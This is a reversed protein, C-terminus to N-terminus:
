SMTEGTIFIDHAVMIHSICCTMCETHRPHAFQDCVIVLEEITLPVINLFLTGTVGENHLTLKRKLVQDKSM